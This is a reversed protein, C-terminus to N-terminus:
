HLSSAEVCVFVYLTGAVKNPCVVLMLQYFVCVSLCVCVCLFVCVCVCVCITHLTCSLTPVSVNGSVLQDSIESPEETM